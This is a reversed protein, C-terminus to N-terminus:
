ERRESGEPVASHTMSAEEVHRGCVVRFIIVKWWRKVIEYQTAYIFPNM